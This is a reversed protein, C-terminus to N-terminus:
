SYGYYITADPWFKAPMGSHTLISHVCNLITQNARECVGDQESTFISTFELCIGTKYYFDSSFFFM